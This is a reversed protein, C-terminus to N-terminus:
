RCLTKYLIGSASGPEAFFTKGRFESTLDIDSETWSDIHGIARTIQWYGTECDMVHNVVTRRPGDFGAFPNINETQFYVFKGKYVVSTSELFINNLRGDYFVPIKRALAPLPSLIVAASLLATLKIFLNTFSIAVVLPQKPQM